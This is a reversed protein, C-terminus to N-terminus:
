FILTMPLLKKLGQQSIKMPVLISIRSTKRLTTIPATHM